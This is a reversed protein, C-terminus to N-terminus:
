PLTYRLFESKKPFSIIWWIRVKVPPFKKHWQSSCLSTAIGRFRVKYFRHHSTKAQRCFRHVQPATHAKPVNRIFIQWQSAGSLPATAIERFPLRMIFGVCSVKTSANLLSVVFATNHFKKGMKEIVCSKSVMFSNKVLTNNKRALHKKLCNKM